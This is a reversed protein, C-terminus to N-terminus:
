PATRTHSPAWSFWGGCFLVDQTMFRIEPSMRAAANAAAAQLLGDPLPDGSTEIWGSAEVDGSAEIPALADGSSDASM